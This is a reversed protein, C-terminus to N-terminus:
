VKGHPVVEREGQVGIEEGHRGPSEESEARRREPMREVRFIMGLWRGILKQNAICFFLYYMNEIYLSQEAAPAM